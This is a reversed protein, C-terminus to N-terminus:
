EIRELQYSERAGMKLVAPNPDGTKISEPDVVVWETQFQEVYHEIQGTGLDLKLQGTYDDTNDTMSAFPNMAAAQQSQGTGPAALVAEMAVVATPREDHSEVGEFTYIREYTKAGMMDFSFAKLNSWDAEPRVEPSKLTMLAPVEHRERTVRDSVLKLATRYEPLDGQLTERVAALDRLAVVVGQPTMEISYSQGILTALPREQDEARASDFDLSMREHVEGQYRLATITIQIVADGEETVREVRQEFTMEVRHATRGDKFAPPKKAMNGEWRITRETASTVKYTAQQGPVFTLTLHTVQPTEEAITPPEATEDAPAEVPEDAPTEAQEVVPVDGAQPEAADEGVSQCGALLVLWGMMMGVVGARVM